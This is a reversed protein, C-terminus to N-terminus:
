IRPSKRLAVDELFSASEYGIFDYKEIKRDHFSELSTDCTAKIVTPPLGGM